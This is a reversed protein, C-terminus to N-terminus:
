TSVACIANGDPRTASSTQGVSGATAAQAACIPVMVNWGHGTRRSSTSCGSSSRMSRSGCGPVSKASAARTARRPGAHQEVLEAVAPEGLRRAVAADVDVQPDLRAPREGVYAVAAIANPRSSSRRIGSRTVVLHHFSSRPSRMKTSKLWFARSRVM